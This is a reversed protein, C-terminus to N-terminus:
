CCTLLSYSASTYSPPADESSLQADRYLPEHVLYLVPAATSAGDQNSTVGTTAGATPRTAMVHTYVPHNKEKKM